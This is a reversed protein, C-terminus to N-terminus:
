QHVKIIEKTGENIFGTRHSNNRILLTRWSNYFSEAEDISLRHFETQCDGVAWAYERLANNYAAGSIKGLDFLISYWEKKIYAGLARTFSSNDPILPYGEDDVAIARYAMEIDGKEISTYIINGQIKYTLSLKDHSCESMHFSDTSARFTNNGGKLTRVQIVKYFDCPLAARYNRVELIATKEIFINPAGVLRMFDVTYDVASEFLLDSMLPHRFLKDLVLRINTYVEAM